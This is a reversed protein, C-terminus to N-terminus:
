SPNLKTYMEYKGFKWSPDLQTIAQIQLGSSNEQNERFSFTYSILVYHANNM